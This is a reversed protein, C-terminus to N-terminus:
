LRTANTALNSHLHLMSLFNYNHNFLPLREHISPHADNEVQQLCQNFQGHNRELRDLFTQECPFYNAMESYHTAGWVDSLELKM